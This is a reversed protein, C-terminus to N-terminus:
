GCLSILLETLSNVGAGVGYAVMSGTFMKFMENGVALAMKNNVQTIASKMGRSTAYYTGSAIRNQVAKVSMAAKQVSASNGVAKVNRTGAGGVFGAIGGIVTSIAVSTWNIENFSAGGILQNAVSSTGGIGAGVFMSGLRSIGSVGVMGTLAGVGTDLAFKGWDLEGSVAQSGLSIGAGIAAGVFAAGLLGGTFVSGVILGAVIVGAILWEWWKTTGLPDTFM